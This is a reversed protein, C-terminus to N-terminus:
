PEGDQAVAGASVEGGDDRQQGAIAATGRQGGLDEHVRHDSWLRGRVQGEV